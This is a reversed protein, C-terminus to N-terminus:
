YSYSQVFEDNIRKYDKKINMKANRIAERNCYISLGTQAISYCEVFGNFARVIHFIISGNSFEVIESNFEEEIQRIIEKAPYPKGSAYANKYPNSSSLKDNVRKWVQSWYLKQNTYGPNFLEQLTSLFAEKVEQAFKDSM